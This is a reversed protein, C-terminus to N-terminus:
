NLRTVMHSNLQKKKELNLIKKALPCEERDIFMVNIKGNTQNAGLSQLDFQLRVLEVPFAGVQRGPQGPLSTM